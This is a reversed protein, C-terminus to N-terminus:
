AEAPAAKEKAHIQQHRCDLWLGMACLTGRLSCGMSAKSPPLPLSLHREVSHTGVGLHAVSIITLLVLVMGEVTRSMEDRILFHRAHSRTEEVM